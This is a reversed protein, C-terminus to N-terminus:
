EIRYRVLYPVDLDDRIVGWLRNGEVAVVALDARARFSALPEGRPDLVLWRAAAAGTSNEQLYTRGDTSAMVETIPSLHDPVHVTARAARLGAVRHDGAFMDTFREYISDRVQPTVPRPTYAYARSFVTDGSFAVRTVRFRPSRGAPEAGPEVLVAASGDLAFTTLDRHMLPQAFIAIRGEVRATTFQNALSRDAVTRVIGGDRTVHLLPFSTVIGNAVLMANIPSEAWYLPGPSVAVAAAPAQSPELPTTHIMETRVHAGTREFAVVRRSFLDSVFVTDGRVTMRGVENFEGPGGGGRGLVQVLAGTEIDFVKISREQPQGVFLRDGVPVVYRLLTLADDGDLSGIRSEEVLTWQPLAREPTQAALPLALVSVLFLMLFLM